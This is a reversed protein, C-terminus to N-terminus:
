QNVDQKGAPVKKHKMAAKKGRYPQATVEKLM